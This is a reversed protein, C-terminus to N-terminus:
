LRPPELLRRYPFAWRSATPRIEPLEKVRYIGFFTEPRLLNHRIYYLDLEWIWNLLARDLEQTLDFNPGYMTGLFRRCISFYPQYHVTSFVSNLVTLIDRSRICEM